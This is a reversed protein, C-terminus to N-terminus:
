REPKDRQKRNQAIPTPRHTPAPPSAPQSPHEAAARRKHRLRGEWITSGPEDERAPAAKRSAEEGGAGGGGRNASSTAEGDPANSGRRWRAYNQEHAERVTPEHQM